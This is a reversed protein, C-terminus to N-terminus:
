FWLLIHRPNWTCIDCKMCNRTKCAKSTWDPYLRSICGFPKQSAPQVLGLLCVTANMKEHLEFFYNVWSTSDNRSAYLRDNQNKKEKLNVYLPLLLFVVISWILTTWSYLFFVEAVMWNVSSQRNWKNSSLAIICECRGCQLAGWRERQWQEESKHPTVHKSWWSHCTASRIYSTHNCSINNRHHDRVCACAHLCLFQGEWLVTLVPVTVDRVSQGEPISLGPVIIWSWSWGHNFNVVVSGPDPGSVRSPLKLILCCILKKVGVELELVAIQEGRSSWSHHHRYDPM